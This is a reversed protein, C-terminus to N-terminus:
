YVSLKHTIVNNIRVFYLGKTLNSVDVNSCEKVSLVKVGSVNYFDADVKNSFNVIGTTPNPYICVPKNMKNERIGVAVINKLTVVAWDKYSKIGNPEIKEVYFIKHDRANAMADNDGWMMGVRIKM